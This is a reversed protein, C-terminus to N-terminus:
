PELKKDSNLNSSGGSKKHNETAMAMNVAM